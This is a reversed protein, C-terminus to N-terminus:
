RHSRQLARKGERPGAFYVPLEYAGPSPSFCGRVLLLTAPVGEAQQQAELEWDPPSSIAVDRNTQLPQGGRTLM